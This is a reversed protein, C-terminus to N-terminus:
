WSEDGEPGSSEAVFGPTADAGRDDGTGDGTDAVPRGRVALYVGQLFISGQLAAAAAIMGQLDLRVATVLLITLTVLLLAMAENVVRTRHQHILRGRLWAIWLALAPLPLFLLLGTRARSAVEPAADQLGILYSDVAPTLVFLAMLVSFVIGLWFIFRRLVDLAGDRDALAIIVEPMALAPARIALGTQFVLPWAALNFEPFALRALAWTIIPQAALALVSTGALPLHFAALSRYTLPPRDDDLREPLSQLVPRAAWHAYIAEVTVGVLLAGAAVAVGSVRASAALGVGTGLTLVLRIATGRAMVKTYGHRILVGQLFRRWAIAATWPTLIQLGVQVWRAIPPPTRLADVVLFDFLPTFAVAIAVLTLGVMWHWVFRRMMRFSQKDRVLATSTSLLNIVPSEVTVALALAIGFAALMTVEDPLRNVLASLLPGESLMLLWSAYLPLWFFFVYRLNM